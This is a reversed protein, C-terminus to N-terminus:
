GSERQYNALSSVRARLTHTVYPLRVPEPPRASALYVQDVDDLAAARDPESLNAVSPLSAAQDRLQDRDLEQWHRHRETEVRDFLGSATLAVAPDGSDPLAPTFRAAAMFRRVWPVVADFGSWILALTGDPRLVRSLEKIAGADDLWALDGATAVVDMTASPFPLKELSAKVVYAQPAARVLQARLPEDQELAYVEHGAAVLAATLAGTGANPELITARWNGVLWQLSGEPLAIM